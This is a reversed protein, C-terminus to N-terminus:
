RTLGAERENVTALERTAAWEAFAIASGLLVVPLLLAIFLRAVQRRHTRRGEWDYGMQAEGFAECAGMSTPGIMLYAVAM